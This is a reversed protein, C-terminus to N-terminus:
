PKYSYLMANGRSDYSESALWAFIRSPGDSSPDVIRSSDDRGFVTTV